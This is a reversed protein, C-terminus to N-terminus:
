LELKKNGAVPTRTGKLIRTCKQFKDGDLVDMYMTHACQPDWHVCRQM